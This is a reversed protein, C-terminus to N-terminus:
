CHCEGTQGVFSYSDDCLGLLSCGSPPQDFTDTVAPAAECVKGCTMLRDDEYPSFRLCRINYETVHRLVVPPPRGLEYPEAHGPVHGVKSIDWLVIMQKAHADLGVAALAQSSSM